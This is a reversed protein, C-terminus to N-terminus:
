KYELAVFEKSEKRGGITLGAGVIRDPDINRGAGQVLEYRISEYTHAEFDDKSPIIIIRKNGIASTTNIKKVAEELGYFDRSHHPAIIGTHYTKWGHVSLYEQVVTGLPRGGNVSILYIDDDKSLREEIAHGLYLGNLLPSDTIKGKDASFVADTVADGKLMRNLTIRDAFIRGNEEKVDEEIIEHPFVIWVDKPVEKLYVSPRLQAPAQYVGSRGNGIFATRRDQPVSELLDGQVYNILLDNEDYVFSATTRNKEPKWFLTALLIDPFNYGTLDKIKSAVNEFSRGTDLVDDIANLYLRGKSSNIFRILKEPVHFDKKLEDSISEGVYNKSRISYTDSFFPDNRRDLFEKIQIELLAGGRWFSAAIREKGEGATELKTKIKGALERNLGPLDGYTLTLYRKSAGIETNTVTVLQAGRYFDEKTVTLSNGM